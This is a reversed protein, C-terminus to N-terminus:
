GYDMQIEEAISITQLIRVNPTSWEMEKHCLGQWDISYFAFISVLVGTGAQCHVQAYHFGPCSLRRSIRGSGCASFLDILCDPFRKYNYDEQCSISV